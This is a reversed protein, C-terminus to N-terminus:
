ASPPSRIRAPLSLRARLGDRVRRRDHGRRRRLSRGGHAASGQVDRAGVRRRQVRPLAASGAGKGGCGVQTRDSVRGRRAGPAELRRGGRHGRGARDRGRPRAGPLGRERSLGRPEDSRRPGHPGPAATRGPRGAAGVARRSSGVAPSGGVVRTDSTAPPDRLVDLIREAGDAVPALTITRPTEGAATVLVAPARAASAPAACGPRRAARVPRPGM